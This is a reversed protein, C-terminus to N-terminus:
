AEGTHQYTRRAIFAAVDDLRYRVLRGAKFYPLDYRGISRWVSLTGPKTGVATATDKDNISVPPRDPDLGLSICIERKISECNNQAKTM